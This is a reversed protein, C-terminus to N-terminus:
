INKIDKGNGYGKIPDIRKTGLTPLLYKAYDTKPKEPEIAEKYAGEIAEEVSVYTFLSKGINGVIYKGKRGDCLVVVVRKMKYNFISKFEELYVDFVNKKQWFHFYKDYWM